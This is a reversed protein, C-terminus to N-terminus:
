GDQLGQSYPLKQTLYFRDLSMKNSFTGDMWLLHVKEKYDIQNMELIHCFVKYMPIHGFVDEM